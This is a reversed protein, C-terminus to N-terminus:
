RGSSKAADRVAPIIYRPLLDLEWAFIKRYENYNGGTFLVVM